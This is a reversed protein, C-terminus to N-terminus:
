EEKRCSDNWCHQTAVYALVTAVHVIVRQERIFSNGSLDDDYRRRTVDRSAVVLKKCDIRM